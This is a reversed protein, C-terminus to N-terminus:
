WIKRERGLARRLEENAEEYYGRLFGRVEEEDPDREREGENFSEGILDPVPIEELGLSRYLERVAEESGMFEENILVHVQEKGFVNWYPELQKAYLGRGLYDFPDVSIGMDWPPPAAGDIFVERLSRTELGHKRSFHYNSLAREVPDRLMVVIHADPFLHAVREAVSPFEIYSTSKEGPIVDDRLEGFLEREYAERGGKVRDEDLFFKPEPRVPDAMQISPHANLVHYLYTTGSRQAGIIVIPDNM